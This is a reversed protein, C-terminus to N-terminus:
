NNNKRVARSYITWINRQDRNLLKAIESFKLGQEKLYSFTDLLKKEASKPGKIPM